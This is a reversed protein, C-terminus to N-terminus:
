RINTWTSIVQRVIHEQVADSDGAWESEEIWNAGAENAPFPRGIMFDVKELEKFSQSDLNDKLYEKHKDRISNAHPMYIETMNATYAGAPEIVADAPNGDTQQYYQNKTM